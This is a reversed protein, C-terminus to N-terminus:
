GSRDLDNGLKTHGYSLKLSLRGSDIHISTQHTLPIQTYLCVSMCVCM